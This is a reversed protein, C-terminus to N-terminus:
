WSKSLRFQPVQGKQVSTGQSSQKAHLIGAHRISRMDLISLGDGNMQNTRSHSFKPLLIIKGNEELKVLIIDIKDPMHSAPLDNSM